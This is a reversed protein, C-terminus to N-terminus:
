IKYAPMDPDDYKLISRVGPIGRSQQYRLKHNHCPSIPCHLFRVYLMGPLQVDM